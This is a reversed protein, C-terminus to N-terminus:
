ISIILSNMSIKNCVSQPEIMSCGATNYEFLKEMSQFNCFSLGAANFQSWDSAIMQEHDNM